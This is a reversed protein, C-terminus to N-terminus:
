AEFQWPLWPEFSLCGCTILSGTQPEPLYWRTSSVEALMELCQQCPCNNCQIGTINAAKRDLKSAGSVVLLLVATCACREVDEVDNM